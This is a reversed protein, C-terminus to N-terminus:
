LRAPRAVDILAQTPKGLTNGLSLTGQHSTSIFFCKLFEVVLVISNLGESRDIARSPTVYSTRRRNGVLLLSCDLHVYFVQLSGICPYLRFFCEHRSDRGAGNNSPPDVLVVGGFSSEKERNGVRHLRFVLGDNVGSEQKLYVIGLQHSPIIHFIRSGGGLLIALESRRPNLREVMRQRVNRLLAHAIM